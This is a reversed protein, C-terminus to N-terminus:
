REPIGALVIADGREVIRLGYAQAVANAFHTSDGAQFLGNVLLEAAEPSEIVLKISNYRNMEEAAVRLPTDDLIVQGRRWATAREMSPTDLSAAAGNTFTLRQGPTLTFTEKPLQDTAAAPQSPAVSNAGAQAQTDAPISPTSSSQPSVQVRGEMLMVAVREDDRRVVFSTGLAKVQRDGVVVIFPWDSKKAVNFLAEGRRLEVRRAQEDYKVVLRTDTNLFVRTGDELVLQRQEGVGTAIV